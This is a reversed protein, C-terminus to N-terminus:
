QAGPTMHENSSGHLLMVHVEFVEIHIILEHQEGCDTHKGKKNVVNQIDRRLYLFRYSQIQTSRFSEPRLALVWTKCNKSGFKPVSQM